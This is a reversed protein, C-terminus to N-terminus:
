IQYITENMQQFPTFGVMSIEDTVFLMVHELKLQM